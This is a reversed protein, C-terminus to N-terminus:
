SLFSSIPFTIKQTKQECFAPIVCIGGTNKREGQCGM